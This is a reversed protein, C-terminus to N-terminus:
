IYSQIVSSTIKASFTQVNFKKLLIILDFKNCELVYGNRNIQTDWTNGIKM